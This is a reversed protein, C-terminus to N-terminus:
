RITLVSFKITALNDTHSIPFDRSSSPNCLWVFRGPSVRLGRISGASHKINTRRAGDRDVPSDASDHLEDGTMQLHSFGREWVAIHSTRACYNAKYKPHPQWKNSDKFWQSDCM